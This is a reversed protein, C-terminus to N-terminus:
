ATPKRRPVPPGFLRILYESLNQMSVRRIGGDHLQRLSGVHESREAFYAWLERELDRAAVGPEGPQIAASSAKAQWHRREEPNQDLYDFLGQEYKNLSM